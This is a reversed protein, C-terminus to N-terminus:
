DRKDEIRRIEDRLKAAREYDESAVADNIQRRLDAIKEEDAKMERFKAPVHGTHRTGGHIGAITRELEDGFTEYCRSCGAKGERMLDEFTMGCLDCKKAGDGVRAPKSPSLMSGILSGIGGFSGGFFGDSFFSPMTMDLEGSKQLEEACEHCLAYKKEKGNINESYYVEANNKKCRECLM